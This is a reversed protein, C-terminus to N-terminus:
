VRPAAPPLALLSRLSALLAAPRGFAAGAADFYDALSMPAAHGLASRAFERQGLAHLEAEYRAMSGDEDEDEEDEEEGGGTGGGGSAALEGALLRRDLEDLWGCVSYDAATSRRPGAPAFAPQAPAVEEAVVAGGGALARQEKDNCAGSAPSDSPPSDPPPPPAVALNRRGAAVAAAAAAAEAAAAEEEEEEAVSYATTLAEVVGGCYGVPPLVATIMATTVANGEEGGGGGGHGGGGSAAVAAYGDSKWRQPLTELDRGLLLAVFAASLPLPLVMGDRLALGLLRGLLAFRRLV